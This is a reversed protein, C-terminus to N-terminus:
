EVASQSPAVMSLQVTRDGVVDVTVIGAGTKVLGHRWCSASDEARLLM